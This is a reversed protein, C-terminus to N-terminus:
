HSRVSPFARWFRECEMTGDPVEASVSEKCRPEADLSYIVARDRHWKRPPGEQSISVTGSEFRCSFAIAARIGQSVIQAPRLADCKQGRIRVHDINVMPCGDDPGPGQCSDDFRDFTLASEIEKRSLVPSPSGPKAAIPAQPTILGLLLFIAPFLRM